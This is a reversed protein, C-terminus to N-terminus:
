RSKLQAGDRRFSGDRRATCESSSSTEALFAETNAVVAVMKEESVNSGLTSGRASSETEITARHRGKRRSWWRRWSRGHSRTRGGGAERGSTEAEEKVVWRQLDPDYAVANEDRLHAVSSTASTSAGSGTCSLVGGIKGMVRRVASRQPSSPRSNNDGGSRGCGGRRSFTRGNEEQVMRGDGNKNASRRRRRAGTSDKATEQVVGGPGRQSVVGGGGTSGSGNISALAHNGLNVASAQEEAEDKGGACDGSRRTTEALSPTISAVYARLNQEEESEGLDLPCTGGYRTPLNEAPIAELLAAAIKAKDNNFIGIKAKMRENLM